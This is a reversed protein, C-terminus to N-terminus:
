WRSWIDILALVIRATGVGAAVVHHSGELALTVCAVDLVAVAAFTQHM